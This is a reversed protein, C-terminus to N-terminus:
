LVADANLRDTQRKRIEELYDACKAFDNTGRAMGFKQCFLTNEQDIQEAKHREAAERLAPGNIMLWIIVLALAAVYVVAAGRSIIAKAPHRGIIMVRNTFFRSTM